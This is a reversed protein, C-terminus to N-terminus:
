LADNGKTQQDDMSSSNRVFITVRDDATCMLVAASVDQSLAVVAAAATALGILNFFKIM